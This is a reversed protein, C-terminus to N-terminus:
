AHALVAVVKGNILAQNAASVYIPRHVPNSSEPYLVIQDPQHKISKITACNDIIALVPDGDTVQANPDIVAHSGDSLMQQGIAKQNMSDGKITVAFLERNRPVLTRDVQLRGRMENDSYILPSGANAYGLIPIYLFDGNSAATDTVRLGRAEGTRVLLGKKELAELYQVVGRKTGIGLAVQIEKLSPAERRQAIYSQIFELVQTQKFTLM